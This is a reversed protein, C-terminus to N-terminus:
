WTDQLPLPEIAVIDHGLAYVRLRRHSAVWHELLKLRLALVEASTTHQGARYTEGDVWLFLVGDLALMLSPGSLNAGECSTAEGEHTVVLGAEVQHKPAVRVHLLGFLERQGELLRAQQAESLLGARNRALDDLSWGQLGVIEDLTLKSLPVGERPLRSLREDHTTKM